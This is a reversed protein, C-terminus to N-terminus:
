TQFNSNILKEGTVKMYNYQGPGPLKKSRGLAQKETPLTAAMSYTLGAKHNNGQSGFTSPYEYKGAGPSSKDGKKKIDDVHIKKM